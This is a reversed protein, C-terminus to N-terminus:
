TFQSRYVQKCHELRKTLREAEDLLGTERALDIASRFYEKLDSYCGVPFRTEYMEDYAKEALAELAAVRKRVDDEPLTM